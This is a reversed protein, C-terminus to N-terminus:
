DRTCVWRTSLGLHAPVASYQRACEPVALLLWCVRHHAGLFALLRSAQNRDLDDDLLLGHRQEGPSLM